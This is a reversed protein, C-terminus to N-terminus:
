KKIINELAKKEEWLDHKALHEFWQEYAGNVLKSYDTPAVELKPMDKLLKKLTLM